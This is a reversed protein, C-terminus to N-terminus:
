GDTEGVWPDGTLMASSMWTEDIRILYMGPTRDVLQAATTDDIALHQQLLCEGTAVGYGDLADIVRHEIGHAEISDALASFDLAEALDEVNCGQEGCEWWGECRGAVLGPCDISVSGDADITMVHPREEVQVQELPILADDSM